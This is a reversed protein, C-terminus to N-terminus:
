PDNSGFNRRSFAYRSPIMTYRASALSAPNREARGRGIVCAAAYGLASLARHMEARVTHM